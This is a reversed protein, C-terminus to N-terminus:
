MLCAQRTLMPKSASALKNIVRIPKDIVATVVRPALSLDSGVVVRPTQVPAPCIPEDVRATTESPLPLLDSFHVKKVPVDTQARFIRQLKMIARRESDGITNQRKILLSKLDGIAKVITDEPTLRLGTIHRHQFVVTDSVRESRTEVCFIQHCRYHEMSTGLIYGSLAHADWTKQCGPAAHVQVV